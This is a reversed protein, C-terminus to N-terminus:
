DLVEKWFYVALSKCYVHFSSDDGMGSSEQTNIM